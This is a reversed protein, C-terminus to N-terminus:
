GFEVFTDNHKKEFVPKLINNSASPLNEKDDEDDYM